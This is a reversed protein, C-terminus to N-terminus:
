KKKLNYINNNIPNYVVDFSNLIEIVKEKKVISKINGNSILYEKYDEYLIDLSIETDIEDNIEYKDFLYGLFKENIVDIQRLIDKCEYTSRKLYYSHILNIIYDDRWQTNESFMHKIKFNTKKEHSLRPTEKFCVRFPIVRIRRKVGGDYQSFTPVYNLNIMMTFAPVFKIYTNSYLMRFSIKDGSSITKIVESDIKNCSNEPISAYFASIMRFYEPEGNKRSRSQLFSSGVPVDTDGFAFSNLRFISSKGNSKSGYMFLVSDYNCRRDLNESMCQWFFDEEYKHIFLDSIANLCGSERKFTEYDNNCKEYTYIPFDYGVDSIIYDEDTYSRTLKTKLDFIFDRFPIIDNFEINPIVSARSTINYLINQIYLRMNNITRKFVSYHLRSMNREDMETYHVGESRYILLDLSKVYKFTFLKMLDSIESEFEGGSINMLGEKCLLSYVYKETITYKFSLKWYKQNETENYKSSRKSMEDFIKFMSEEDNLKVSLTSCCITIKFWSSFEDIYEIPMVSLLIDSFEKLFSPKNGTYGSYYRYGINAEEDDSVNNSDKKEKKQISEKKNSDKKEKKPISEKKNLDKKITKNTTKMGVLKFLMDPMPPIVNESYIMNYNKGSSICVCGTSILEINNSSIRGIDEGLFYLHLLGNYTLDIPCRFYSHFIAAYALVNHITHLTPPNGSKISEIIDSLKDDDVEEEVFIGNINTKYLKSDSSLCDGISKIDLLEFLSHLGHFSDIDLVVLGKDNLYIYRNNANSVDTQPSTHTKCCFNYKKSVKNNKVEQPTIICVRTEINNLKCIRHM